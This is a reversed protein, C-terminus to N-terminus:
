GVVPNVVIRLARMAIPAGLIEVTRGPVVGEGVVERAIYNTMSGASFGSQVESINPNGGFYPIVNRDTGAVSIMDIVIAGNSLATVEPLNIQNVLQNDLTEFESVSFSAANKFVFVHGSGVQFRNINSFVEPTNSDKFGGVVGFGVERGTTGEPNGISHYTAAGFEAVPGLNGDFMLSTNTARNMGVFLVLDGDDVNELLVDIGDGGQDSAANPGESTLPSGPKSFYNEQEIVIDTEIEQVVEAPRFRIRAGSMMIPTGNHYVSRALMSDSSAIEYSIYTSINPHDGPNLLEIANGDAHFPRKNARMTVFNIVVDGPELGTVQPLTIMNRLNVNDTDTVLISPNQLVGGIILALGHALHFRAINSFLEPTNAGVFGGALAMVQDHAQDGDPGPFYVPDGFGLVPQPALNGGFPLSTNSTLHGGLFLIYDGEDAGEAVVDIGSGDVAQTTNPGDQTLTNGNKIYYINDKFVINTETIGLVEIPGHWTSGGDDSIEYDGQGLETFTRPMSGSQTLYEGPDTEGAVRLTHSIASTNPSKHVTLTDLDTLVVWDPDPNFARVGSYEYKECVDWILEQLWINTPESWFNPDGRFTNFDPLGVPSRRYITAYHAMAIVYRGIYSPHSDGWTEHTDGFFIYIERLDAPSTEAMIEDYLRKYIQPIPIMLVPAAAPDQGINIAELLDEQVVIQHDNNEYWPLFGENDFGAYNNIGHLAYIYMQTGNNHCANAWLIGYDIFSQSASHTSLNSIAFVDVPPSGTELIERANALGGMTPPNDWRYRWDSGNILNILVSPATGGIDAEAMQVIWPPMGNNMWSAGSTMLQTEVSRPENLDPLDGSAESESVTVRVRATQGASLLMYIDVQQGEHPELLESHISIRNDSGVSYTASPVIVTDTDVVFVTASISSGSSVPILEAQEDLISDIVRLPPTSVSFQDTM